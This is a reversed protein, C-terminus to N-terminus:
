CHWLPSSLNSELITDLVPGFGFIVFMGVSGMNCSMELSFFTQSEVLFLRFAVVVISPHEWSCLLHKTLPNYVWYVGNILLNYSIVWKYVLWKSGLKWGRCGLVLWGVRSVDLLQLALATAVTLKPPESQIKEVSYVGHFRRPKETAAKLTSLQPVATPPEVM